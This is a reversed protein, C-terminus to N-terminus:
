KKKTKNGILDEKARKLDKRAEELVNINWKEFRIVQEIAELVSKPECKTIEEAETQTKITVLTKDTLGQTSEMRDMKKLAKELNNLTEKRINKGNGNQIRYYINPNVGLKRLTKTIPEGTKKIKQALENIAKEAITM